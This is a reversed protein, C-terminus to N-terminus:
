LNRSLACKLRDLGTMMDGLRHRQIRGVVFNMMFMLSILWFRRSFTWDGMKSYYYRIERETAGHIEYFIM